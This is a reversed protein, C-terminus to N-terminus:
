RARRRPCANPNFFSMLLRPLCSPFLRLFDFHQNHVIMLDDALTQAGEEFQVLIDGHDTLRAVPIVATSITRWSLRVDDQHIESWACRSSPIAAV